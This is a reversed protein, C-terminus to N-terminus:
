FGECSNGAPMQASATVKGGAFTFREHTMVTSGPFRYCVFATARTEDAPESADLRFSLEAGDISDGWEELSDLFEERTQTIGIDELTIVADDSLLPALRERDAAFLAAYWADLVPHVSEQASAPLVAALILIVTFLTRPFTM